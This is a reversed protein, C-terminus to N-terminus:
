KEKLCNKTKKKYDNKFKISTQKIITPRRRGFAVGDGCFGCAVVYIYIYICISMYICIHTYM